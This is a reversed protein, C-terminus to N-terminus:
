VLFRRVRRVNVKPICLTCRLRGSEVCRDLAITISDADEQILIGVSENELLGQADEADITEGQTISADFWQVHVLKTGLRTKRDM